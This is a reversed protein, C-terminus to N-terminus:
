RTSAAAGARHFRRADYRAAAVHRDDDGVQLYKGVDIRPIGITGAFPAEIAKQDLVARIKALASQSAALASSAEEVAADSNVGTKRLSM